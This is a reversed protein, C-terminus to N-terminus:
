PRTQNGTTMHILSMTAAPDEWMPAHGTNPLVIWSAHDPALHRLQCSEAPLLPDDDGFALTIPVDAGIADARAFSHGLLGEHAEDYGQAERQAVTVARALTFNVQEPRSLASGFAFNRIAPVAMALEGLFGTVQSLVRTLDLMPNRGVFPEWLGASCLGTVSLARGDAALELAVWGGMSNGVVHAKQIGLVDLFQGLHHAQSRPTVPEGPTVPVSDGHGPLDVAIVQYHRALQDFIPMFTARSSGLGHILLLPAGNGRRHFALGAAYDPAPTGPVISAHEPPSLRDLAVRAPALLVRSDLM